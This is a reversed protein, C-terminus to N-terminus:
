SLSICLSFASSGISTVSNPIKTTKCGCVLTNSNTEIIANCNERSDYVTNNSDVIISELSICGDFELSGISEVSAPIVIESLSTCNEFAYKGISTVSDPIEISSLSTCGDFARNYITTVSSPIVIESLSTCDKFTCYGIRTISDPIEIESLSTCGEFTNEYIEKLTSPLVVQELDEQESAVSSTIEVVYKEGSPGNFVKPVIVIPNNTCDIALVYGADVVGYYSCGYYFENNWRAELTVNEDIVDNNEIKEDTGKIYWGLFYGEFDENDLSPMNLIAKNHEISESTKYNTMLEELNLTTNYDYTVTYKVVEEDEANDDDTVDEDEANNDDTVDELAVLDYWVDSGVFRWQIHTSTINFEVQKGNVDQPGAGDLVEDVTILNEWDSDNISWQICDDEVRMKVKDNKIDSCASVIFLAPIVLCISLIFTLFKKKM